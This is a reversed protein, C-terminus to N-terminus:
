IIKSFNRLIEPTDADLLERDPIETLRLLQPHQRIVAAGGTDGELALLAPFFAAPFLCPNGRRGNASVAHISDPERCFAEALRRVSTGTLLPQDATMFAVGDMTEMTQLGLAITRSIGLEPQRNEVTLFGRQRAAAGIAAEGTVVTVRNFIGEPVADLAWQYLPKGQLKALLKGGGFRKGAGAAMIVCGLKM